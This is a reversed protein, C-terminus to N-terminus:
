IRIRITGINSTQEHARVSITCTGPALNDPLRFIVQTFDFNPVLRVNEAPVNYSQGLGDVLNVVVSSFPEGQGLQLNWVFVMV